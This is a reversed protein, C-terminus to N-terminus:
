RTAGSKTRRDWEAARAPDVAVGLEGKRYANALREAASRDGLDAAKQWYGLSKGADAAIGAWGGEYTRALALVALVHGRQAAETWHRLALEPSKPVGEGAAHMQGLGYLGGPDGQAAAKRFWVVAEEDLEAKDLIDALRAQAPANGAEAALRFQRIAEALDGRGYAEEGLAIPSKKPAEAARASSGLAAIVCGAAFVGTALHRLRAKM